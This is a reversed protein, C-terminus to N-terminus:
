AAVTFVKSLELFERVTMHLDGGAIDKIDEVANDSLYWAPDEYLDEEYRSEVYCEITSEVNTIYPTGYDDFDLDYADPDDFAEEVDFEAQAILEDGYKITAIALGYVNVDGYDPDVPLYNGFSVDFYSGGSNLPVEISFESSYDPHLEFDLKRAFESDLFEGLEMELIEYASM